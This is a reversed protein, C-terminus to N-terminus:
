EVTVLSDAAEQKNDLCVPLYDCWSCWMGPRKYFHGAEIERAVYGAKDLYETLQQGTRETSRWLIQPEKTKVLVWLALREAQPEALKYATLQDSMHADHEDLAAGATKFDVVTKLGDVDGVLDIVGVFPLDLGTVSLTFPREIATVNQIRPLEENVFKTLLAKGSAKLKEWNERQNYALPVHRVMNWSEEFFTFPDSKKQFLVALAQHMISGFVLSASPVRPRLNEIYYLRYQEPCLLYRNIRSHSIHPVKEAPEDRERLLSAIM